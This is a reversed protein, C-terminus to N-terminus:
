SIRVPLILHLDEVPEETVATIVFPRLQGTFSIKVSNTNLTQLAAIAYKGSLGITFGDTGTWSEFAIEKVGKSISSSTSFEAFLTGVKLKIPVSDGALSLLLTLTDILEQRNVVLEESFEKPILRSTDPYNGELLTSTLLTQGNALAIQNQSPFIVVSRTLDFSKLAHDLLNAPVTISIEETYAGQIVKGLRHSDTAVFTNEEGFKMNVGTLVPRSDSTSACYITKRVINEFDAGDFTIANNTNEMNIKPFEDAEMTSFELCTKDETVKVTGDQLDFSINGKLKKTITFAEKPLISKGENEIVIGSEENIPITHILNETGDSITFIICDAKVQVLVGNLIPNQPKANMLRGSKSIVETILKNPVTFKM